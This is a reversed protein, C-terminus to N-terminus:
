FSFGLGTFAVVPSHDSSSVGGRYKEALVLNKNILEYVQVGGKCYWKGYSAPVFSLPTKLTAGISFVGFHSHEAKDAAPDGNWFGQPGVTVWTPFSITVPLSKFTYSPAMGIEVDYTRGAKGFGVTSSGSVAYFPKVYPHFAVPLGSGSDDYAALFEINTQTNWLGTPSRFQEYTAGVTWNSITAHAGASWDGEYWGHNSIPKDAVSGGAWYDDWVGATVSVDKLLGTKDSYLSVALNLDVQDSYGKNNLVYGRPTIYDTLVLEDASVTISSPDAMAPASHAVMMTMLASLACYRLKCSM